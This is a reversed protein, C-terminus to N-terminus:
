NRINEYIGKEETNLYAIIQNKDIGFDKMNNIFEEIKEKAIKEKQEEILKADNTVFRGNTSDSYVLGEEELNAYSRQVTNPNVKYDLALTRVAPLQQGCKYEGSIIKAKLEDIIQIYIPTHNKFDIPM